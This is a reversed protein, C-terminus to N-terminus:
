TQRNNRPEPTGHEQHNPQPRQTHNIQRHSITNKATSRQNSTPNGPETTYMPVPYSPLAQAERAWLLGTVMMCAQEPTM